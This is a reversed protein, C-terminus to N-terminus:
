VVPYSPAIALGCMGANSSVDRRLRIYGEEGWRTTWSNKVTWYPVSANPVPADCCKLMDGPQRPCCNGTWGQASCVPHASCQASPPDTSTTTVATAAAPSAVEGYGVVLVGHDLNTGCAGSFVGSKYFQFGKQDAEISVSVPGVSGVAVRLATENNQPLARFGTVSVRSTCGAAKCAGVKGDIRTTNAYPYAAETCLGGSREIFAFASQMDGGGCGDDTTDCELLEQLLRSHLPHPPCVCRCPPTSAGLPLASPPLLVQESLSFLEGSKIAHAGEVAGTTSFAWCSGCQGQNKVATVAGRARWDMSTPLARADVELLRRRAAEVEAAAAESAPPPPRAGAVACSAYTTRFEELTLDAFLNLAVEYTETGSAFRGSHEAVFAANSAFIARRRSHEEPSAYSRGHEAAWAEFAGDSSAVDPSSAAADATAAADPSASADATAACTPCPLALVVEALKSYLPTGVGTAPDWGKIAAFGGYRYGNTNCGSTVDRFSGDSAHQYILPNLFGLPPKKAAVTGSLM